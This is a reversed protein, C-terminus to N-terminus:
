NPAPTAGPRRPVRLVVFRQTPSFFVPEPRAPAFLKELLPLQRMNLGLATQDVVVFRQPSDITEGLITKRFSPFFDLQSSPFVFRCSPELGTETLVALTSFHWCTVEGDRAQQEKLYEVVPRLERWPPNGVSKNRALDDKLGDSDASVWCDRWRRLRDATLLPHFLVLVAFAAPLVAAVAARPALRTLWGLVLAVALLLDPMTQYEFQKQLYNSQFFWGLFFAALLPLRLVDRPDSAAPAPRGRVAAIILWVALPLAVFYVASWPWQWVFFAIKTQTWWDFSQGTYDRNWGGLTSALFDPWDGTLYLAAVSAAGVLLGGALV